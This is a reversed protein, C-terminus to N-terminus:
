YVILLSGVLGIEAAIETALIMDFLSYMAIIEKWSRVFYLSNGLCFLCVFILEGSIIYVVNIYDDRKVGYVIFINQFSIIFAILLHIM